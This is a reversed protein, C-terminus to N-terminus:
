NLSWDTQESYRLRLANAVKENTQKEALECSLKHKRGKWILHAEIETQFMGLHEKKSTFPNHCRARYKGDEYTVGLMCEGRPRSLERIFINVSRPVFVCTEPSYVKNDKIILDKDLDLGILNKEPQEVAWDLFCSLKLWDDCVKSNIYSPKRLREKESFCRRLMGWWKHYYQNKANISDVDKVGRGYVM